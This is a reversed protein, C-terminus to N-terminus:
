NVPIPTVVLVRDGNPLRDTTIYLRGDPGQAVARLRGIGEIARGDNTINGESDVDYFHLHAAKLTAVVLRGDWDGWERGEVFTAGCLALTPRGTSWAAEVADPFAVLDTMPVSETYGPVPDWGFNGAVLKTKAM